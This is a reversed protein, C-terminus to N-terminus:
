DFTLFFNDGLDVFRIKSNLEKEALEANRMVRRCKRCQTTSNYCAFCHGFGLGWTGARIRRKLEAIYKYKRPKQMQQIHSKTHLKPNIYIPDNHKKSKLRSKM